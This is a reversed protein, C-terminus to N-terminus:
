AFYRRTQRRSSRPARNDYSLLEMLRKEARRELSAQENLPLNRVSGSGIAHATALIAWGQWSTRLGHRTGGSAKSVDPAEAAVVLSGPYAKDPVPWVTMQQQTIGHEIIAVEPPGRQTKDDIAEYDRLPIIDVPRDTGSVTIYAELVSQTPDDGSNPVAYITTGEIYNLTVDRRVFWWCRQDALVDAIVTDLEELTRRLVHGDPEERPSIEGIRRLARTAIEIATLRASM